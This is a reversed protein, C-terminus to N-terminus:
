RKEETKLITTKCLRPQVGEARVIHSRTVTVRRVPGQIVETAVVTGCEPCTADDSAWPAAPPQRDQFPKM